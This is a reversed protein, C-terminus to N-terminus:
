NVLHLYNVTEIVIQNPTRSKFLFGQSRAARVLAGEDPSTAQYILEGDVETPREPVVAVMKFM